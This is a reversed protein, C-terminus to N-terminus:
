LNLVLSRDTEDKSAQIRQWESHADQHALADWIQELAALDFHDPLLISQTGALKLGRMASGFAPRYTEPHLMFQASYHVGSGIVLRVREWEQQRASLDPRDNEQARHRLLHLMSSLIEYAIGYAAQSEELPQDGLIIECRQQPLGALEELKLEQQYTELRSPYILTQSDAFPPTLTITMAPLLACVHKAPQSLESQQAQKLANALADVPKLHRHLAEIGARASGEALLLLNGISLGPIVQVEPSPQDQETLAEAFNFCGGSHLQVHARLGYLASEVDSARKIREPQQDALAQRVLFGALNLLNEEYRPQDDIELSLDTWAKFPLEDDIPNSCFVLPTPAPMSM